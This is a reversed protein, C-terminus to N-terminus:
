SIRYVEYDMDIQASHLYSINDVIVARKGTFDQNDREFEVFDCEIIVFKGNTNHAHWNDHKVQKIAIANFLEEDTDDAYWSDQRLDEIIATIDYACLGNFKVKNVQDESTINKENQNTTFRLAIMENTKTINNDRKTIVFTRFSIQYKM